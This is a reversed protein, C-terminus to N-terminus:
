IALKLHKTREAGMAVSSLHYLLCIVFNSLEFVTQNLIIVPTKASIAKGLKMEIRGALASGKIASM